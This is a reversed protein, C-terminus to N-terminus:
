ILEHPLKQGGEVEFKPTEMVLNKNCNKPIQAHEM